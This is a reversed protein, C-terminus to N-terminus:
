IHILSLGLTVDKNVTVSETFTFDTRLTSPTVSNFTHVETAGDDMIRLNWVVTPANITPSQINAKANLANQTATSIGMNAPSLNSVQDLGVM